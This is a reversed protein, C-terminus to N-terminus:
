KIDLPIIVDKLDPQVYDDTFSFTSDLSVIDNQYEFTAVLKSSDEGYEAPFNGRITYLTSSGQIEVTFPTAREDDLLRYDYINVYVKYQGDPATDYPWFANELRRKKKRIDNFIIGEADNELIGNSTFREEFFIKGIPSVICIDLDNKNSWSLTVRLDIRDVTAGRNELIPSLGSGTGIGGIGSGPTLSIKRAKSKYIFSPSLQPIKIAKDKFPTRVPDKINEMVKKADNKEKILQSKPTIPKEVPKHKLSKPNSISTKTQETPEASNAASAADSASVSPKIQKIKQVTISVSPPEVKTVDLAFILLLVIIVIHVVASIGVSGLSSFWKFLSFKEKKKREKQSM